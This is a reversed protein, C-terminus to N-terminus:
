HWTRYWRAMVSSPYPGQQRGAADKYFWQREEVPAAEEVSPASAAASPGTGPAPRKLGSSLSTSAVSAVSGASFAAPLGHGGVQSAAEVAARSPRGGRRYEFDSLLVVTQEAARAVTRVQGLFSLHQDLSPWTPGDELARSLKPCWPAQKPSVLPGMKMLTPPSPPACKRVMPVCPGDDDDEDVEGAHREPDPCAPTHKAEDEDEEVREYGLREYFRVASALSRLRVEGPRFGEATAIGLLAARDEAVKMLQRGYGKGRHKDAIGVAGVSVGPVPPGWTKYAVFGLLDLAPDEGPREEVLLSLKLNFDRQAQRFNKLDAGFEELLIEALQEDIVSGLGSIAYADDDEPDQLMVDNLLLEEKLEHLEDELQWLEKDTLPKRRHERMRREIDAIHQRAAESPTVATKASCHIDGKFTGEIHLVGDDMFWKENAFDNCLQENSSVLIVGGAFHDLASRLGQIDEVDMYDALEDLILIHPHQWLAAALVIRIKMSRSLRGMPLQCASADVQFRALHSQVNDRTLEKVALASSAQWDDELQVLSRYGMEILLEKKVWTKQEQQVWKVQYELAGAADCRRDCAAEPVLQIDADATGEPGEGLQPLGTARDLHWREKRRARDEPALVDSSVALSEKDRHDAFRWFMYQMATADKFQGFRQLSHKCVYAVRAGLVRQVAGQTPLLRGSLVQLLTSRGSGMPGMLAVRSAQSVSLEANRVAPHPQEPYQYTVGCMRLIAKGRTAVGTLPGPLPFVFRHGAHPEEALDVLVKSRALEKQMPPVRGLLVEDKERYGGGLGVPTAAPSTMPTALMIALEKVDSRAPIVRPPVASGPARLQGQTGPPMWGGKGGWAGAGKGQAAPNWEAAPRLGGPVLGMLGPPVLSAETANSGMQMMRQPPPIVRPTPAQGSVSPFPSSMSMAPVATVPDSGPAAAAPAPIGLAQAAAVAAAQAEPPLSQLLAQLEPPVGASSGGNQFAGDTRLAKNPPLGFADM